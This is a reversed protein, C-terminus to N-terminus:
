EAQVKVGQVVVSVEDVTIGIHNELIYKVKEQINQAVQSIKVGYSVVIHIVVKLSNEGVSVEIGKSLNDLKLLESIGDKIQHRSAMGVIGYSDMAAMGAIMAIVQEGIEITGQENKFTVAM